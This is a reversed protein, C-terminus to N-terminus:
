FLAAAILVILAASVSIMSSDSTTEDDDDNHNVTLGGELSILEFEDDDGLLHDFDDDVPGYYVPRYIIDDDDHNDDDVQDDDDGPVAYILGCRFNPCDCICGEPAPTPTVSPTPTNSASAGPSPTASSSPTRSPTPAVEGYTTFTNLEFDVNDFAQVYVEIAGVRAFDCNSDFQSYDIVEEQEQPNQGTGPVEIDASFVLRFASAFNELLNLDNLGNTNLETSDDIGDYQLFAFGNGGNPTTVFWQGDTVVSTLVLNNGAIATLEIDREGGIMNGRTFESESIPEFDGEQPTVIIISDSGASFDDIFFKDEFLQGCTTLAFLALVILFLKSFMVSLCCDASGM